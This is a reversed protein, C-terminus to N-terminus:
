TAITEGVLIRELQRASKPVTVDCNKLRDLLESVEEAGDFLSSGLPNRMLEAIQKAKQRPTTGPLLDALGHIIRNRRSYKDLKVPQM